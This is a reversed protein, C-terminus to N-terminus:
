KGLYDAAELELNAAQDAGETFVLMFMKQETATSISRVTRSPTGLVLSQRNFSWSGSSLSWTPSTSSVSLAALSDAQKDLAIALEGFYVQGAYILAKAADAEAGGKALSASATKMASEAAAVDLNGKSDVAWSPADHIGLPEGITLRACPVPGGCVNFTPYGASATSVFAFLFAIM